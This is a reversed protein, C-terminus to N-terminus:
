TTTDGDDEENKVCKGDPWVTQAYVVMSVGLIGIFMNSITIGYKASMFKIVYMNLLVVFSTIFLRAGIFTIWYKATM